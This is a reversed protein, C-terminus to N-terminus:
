WAFVADGFRQQQAAVHELVIERRAALGGLAQADLIPALPERALRAGFSRVDLARLADITRKRFRSLPALRADLVSRRPPGPSFGDGNDLLLLPGAAGLELINANDGGFRDYNLTLFDFVIMDSLEAPLEARQPTPAADYFTIPAEQRLRRQHAASLAEGYASARQYPSVTTRGFGESRVWNEWGPPTVAPVLHGEVWYILAGRVLGDRSVTLEKARSDSGAARRLSSWLVSRSVVPPVRGLGLARDLHYAAVEAYWRASSVSQEPKYYAKIGSALRLKFALTRGGSGKKAAVIADSSLQALLEGDRAQGLFGLGDNPAVKAPSPLARALQTAADASTETSAGTPSANAGAPVAALRGSRHDVRSARQELARQEHRKASLYGLLGGGCAFGVVVAAQLM